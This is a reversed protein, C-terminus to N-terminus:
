LNSKGYNCNSCLTQLNEITTEGGKSWPIIHDVHLECGSKLAPSVGCLVCKFGDRKMVIFRQRLNATRSTRKKGQEKRRKEVKSEPSLVLSISETELNEDNDERSNVYDIFKELAKRWTGFTREYSSINLKSLPSVMEQYKPQRGLKQWVSLINEFYDEDSSNYLRNIELGAEKKAKNWGGFRKCVTASGFEGFTDYDSMTIPKKGLQGSVKKLDNILKEKPIQTESLDGGWPRKSKGLDASQLANAWSGFRKKQTQYSFKGHSTYEKLTLSVKGLNQAVQKLDEILEANSFQKNPETLEFKM